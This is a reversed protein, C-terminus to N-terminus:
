ALIDEHNGGQIEKLRKHTMEGGISGATVTVLLQMEILDWQTIEMEMPTYEAGGISGEQFRDYINSWAQQMYLEAWEEVSEGFIMAGMGRSFEKIFDKKSLNMINKSKSVFSLALKNISEKSFTNEGIRGEVNIQAIVATILGNVLAFNQAGELDGPNINLYHQKADVYSQTGYFLGQFLGQTIRIGTVGLGVGEALYGVGGTTQIIAYMKLIESVAVNGFAFGNFYGDFNLRGANMENLYYRDFTLYDEFSDIGALAYFAINKLSSEDLSNKFKEKELFQKKLAEREALTGQNTDLAINEGNVYDFKWQDPNYGVKELTYDALADTWGHIDSFNYGEGSM